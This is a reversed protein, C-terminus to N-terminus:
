FRRAEYTKVESRKAKRASIIRLRAGREVHVVVLIRLLGSMGVAVFRDPSEADAQVLYSPDSFVTSAEEFSVGHKRLNTAAKAADWEFDGYVVTAVPTCYRTVRSTRLSAPEAEREGEVGGRNGVPPPWPRAVSSRLEIHRKRAAM